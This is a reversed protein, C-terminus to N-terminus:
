DSIQLYIDRAAKEYISTMTFTKGTKRALRHLEKIVDEPVDPAIKTNRDIGLPVGIGQYM